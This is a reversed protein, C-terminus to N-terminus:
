SRKSCSSPRPRRTSTSARGPERRAGHHGDRGFVVVGQDVAGSTAPTVAVVSLSLAGAALGAFASRKLLGKLGM